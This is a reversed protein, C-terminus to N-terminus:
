SPLIPLGTSFIYTQIGLQPLWAMVTHTQYHGVNHTATAPCFTSVTDASSKNSSVIVVLLVLLVLLWLTNWANNRSPPSPFSTLTVFGGLM